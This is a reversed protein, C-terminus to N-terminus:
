KNCALGLLSNLGYINSVEDMLRSHFEQTNTYDFVSSNLITWELKVFDSGSETIDVFVLSEYGEMDLTKVMAEILQSEYPRVQNATVGDFTIDVNVLFFRTNSNTLM